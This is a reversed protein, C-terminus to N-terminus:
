DTTDAPHKRRLGKIISWGVFVLGHAFGINVLLREAAGVYFVSGESKFQYIEGTAFNPEAPSNAALFRYFALGLLMVICLYRAITGSIGPAWDKRAM